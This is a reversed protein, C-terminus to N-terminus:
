IFIHIWGFFRKEKEMGLCRELTVLNESSQNDGEYTAQNCDQDCLGGKFVCKSDRNFICAKESM